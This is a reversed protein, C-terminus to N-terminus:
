KIVELRDQLLTIIYQLYYKMLTKNLHFKLRVEFHESQPFKYKVNSEHSNSFILQDRNSHNSDTCITLHYKEYRKYFYPTIEDEINKFFIKAIEVAKEITVIQEM